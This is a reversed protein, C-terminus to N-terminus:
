DLEMLKFFFVIRQENGYLMLTPIQLGIGVTVVPKVLMVLKINNRFV